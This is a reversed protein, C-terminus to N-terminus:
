EVKMIPEYIDLRYNITDDRVVLLAFKGEQNSLTYGLEKEKPVQHTHSIQRIVVVAGSIPECQADLVCGTILVDNDRQLIINKQLTTCNRLERPTILIEAYAKM